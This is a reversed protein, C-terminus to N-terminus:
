IWGNRQADSWQVLYPKVAVSAAPFTPAVKLSKLKPDAVRSVFGAFTQQPPLWGDWKTGETFSAGNPAPRVGAAGRSTRDGFIPNAFLANRVAMRVSYGDPGWFPVKRWRPANADV